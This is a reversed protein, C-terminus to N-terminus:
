IHILSLMFPSVIKKEKLSPINELIQGIAKSKGGAYRLPSIIVRKYEGKKNKIGDLYNSLYTKSSEKMIRITIQYKFKIDIKFIM